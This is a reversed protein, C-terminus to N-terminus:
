RKSELSWDLFAAKIRFAMKSIGSSVSLDIRGDIDLEMSRKPCSCWAGHVM